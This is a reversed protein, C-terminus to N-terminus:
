RLAAWIEKHQFCPTYINQTVEVQRYTQTQLVQIQEGTSTM